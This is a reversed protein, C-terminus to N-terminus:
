IRELALRALEEAVARARTNYADRFDANTTLRPDSVQFQVQLTKPGQRVWLDFTAAATQGTVPVVYAADGLGTVEVKNTIAPTDFLSTNGISAIVMDQIPPEEQGAVDLLWRCFPQVRDAVGQASIVTGGVIELVEEDTLVTCPNEAFDADLAPTRSAAAPTPSEGASPTTSAAPSPSSSDATASGEANGGPSASASATASPEGGAPVQTDDSEGDDGSCSGLLLAAGLLPTLLWRREFM